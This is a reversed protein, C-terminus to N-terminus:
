EARKRSRQKEAYETLWSGMAIIAVMSFLAAGWSLLWERQSTEPSVGSTLIQPQVEDQPRNPIWPWNEIVYPWGQRVALCETAQATEPGWTGDVGHGPLQCGSEIAATQLSVVRPDPDEGLGGAYSYEYM